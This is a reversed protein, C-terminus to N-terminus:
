WLTVIIVDAALILYTALYYLVNGMGRSLIRKYGYPDIVMFLTRCWCGVNVYFLLIIKLIAKRNRQNRWRQCFILYTGYLALQGYGCAAIVTQQTFQDGYLIDYTGFCNTGNAAPTWCICNGDFCDGFQNCDGYCSTTTNTINSVL